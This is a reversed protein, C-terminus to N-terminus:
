RVFGLSASGLFSGPQSGLRDVAAIARFTNVAIVVETSLASPDVTAESATIGFAEETPGVVSASAISDAFRIAIAESISPEAALTCGASSVVALFAPM